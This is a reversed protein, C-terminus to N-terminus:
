ESAAASEPSKRKLFRFTSVAAIALAATTGPEPITAPEDPKPSPSPSPNPSPSPSPNPSPSPTPNPQVVPPATGTLKSSGGRSGDSGVSTLRAGFNQNLFQEVTINASKHSVTFFTSQIDDKGIGETGIELGIDFLNKSGGGNLNNDGGTGSVKGAELITKTINSGTIQLDNLLSDNAINFFIGRIDALNVSKDVDVQFRVQNLNNSGTSPAIDSLTFKLQSSSGTFPSLNFSLSAANASSFTSSVIALGLAALTSSLGSIPITKKM